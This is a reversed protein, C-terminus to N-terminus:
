KFFIVWFLEIIFDDLVFICLYKHTLCIIYDLSLLNHLFKFLSTINEVGQTQNSEQRTTVFPDTCNAKSRVNFYSYLM